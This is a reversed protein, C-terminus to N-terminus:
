LVVRWPAFQARLGLSMCGAWAADQTGSHMISLVCRNQFFVGVHVTWLSKVSLGLILSIERCRRWGDGCEWIKTFLGDNM